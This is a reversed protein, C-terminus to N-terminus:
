RDTTEETLRGSGNGFAIRDDFQGPRDCRTRGLCIVCTLERLKGRWELKGPNNWILRAIGSRLKGVALNETPHPYGETGLNPADDAPAIGKENLGSTAAKKTLTLPETHSDPLESFALNLDLDALDRDIAKVQSVLVALGVKGKVLLLGDGM